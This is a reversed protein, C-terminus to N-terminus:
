LRLGAPLGARARIEEVVATKADAYDQTFKWTRAALERKVTEYRIRDDDHTRLWDRFGIMREIEVCGPSFVHVNADPEFGKLLRHEHWASERVHLAYGIRELPPVYSPEDASDAVILLIDIRPKAALGPVSTSGAHELLVVAAGLATAIRRRHSEFQIPWDPDYDVLEISSSLTEQGAIWIGAKEEDTYRLKGSDPSIHNEVM